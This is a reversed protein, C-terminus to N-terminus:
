FPIFVAHSQDTTAAAQEGLCNTVPRDQPQGSPITLTDLGSEYGRDFSWFVLIIRHFRMM